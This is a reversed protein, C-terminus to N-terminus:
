GCGMGTGTCATGCATTERKIMHNIKGGEFVTKVAEEIVGEIVMVDVGNKTLMQKPNAGIGSVLVARCDNITDSLAQWRRMGDGPEPTQRTEILSVGGNNKGYIYLQCAEGLHQNILVGEMSAVAIYPRKPDAARKTFNHPLKECEQLKHM